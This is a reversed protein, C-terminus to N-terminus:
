ADPDWEGARVGQLFAEWEARTFVLVPGDPDHSNRIQVVALGQAVELCNGTGSYSSKRWTLDPM